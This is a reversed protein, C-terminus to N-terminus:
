VALFCYLFLNRQLLHSGPQAPTALIGLAVPLVGFFTNRVFYIMNNRPKFSM